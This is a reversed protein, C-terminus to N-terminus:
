RLRCAVAVVMALRLYHIAWIRNSEYMGEPICLTKTSGIGNRTHMALARSSFGTFAQIVSRPYTIVKPLQSLGAVCRAPSLATLHASVTEKIRTSAVRPVDRGGPVSKTLM